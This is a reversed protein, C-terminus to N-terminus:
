PLAPRPRRRARATRLLLLAIAGLVGGSGTKAQCTPLLACCEVADLRPAVVIFTPASVRGDRLDVVLVYVDVLAARDVFVTFAGASRRDRRLSRRRAPRRQPAARHPCRREDRARARADIMARARAEM